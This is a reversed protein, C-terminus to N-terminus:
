HNPTDSRRVINTGPPPNRLVEDTFIQLYLPAQAKASASRIDSLSIVLINQLLDYTANLVPKPNYTSVADNLQQALVTAFEVGDYTKTPM